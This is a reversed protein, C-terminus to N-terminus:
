LHFSFSSDCCCPSSLSQAAYGPWRHAILPEVLARDAPDIDSEFFSWLHNGGIIAGPEVLAIDLQPKERRLALAALGGALGGGLIIVDHRTALM